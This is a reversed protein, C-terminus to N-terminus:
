AAAHSLVSGQPQLGRGGDATRQRVFQESWVRKHHCDNTKYRFVVSTYLFQLPKDLPDTLM